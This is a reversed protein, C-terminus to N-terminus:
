EEVESSGELSSEVESTSPQLEFPIETLVDPSLQGMPVFISGSSRVLPGSSSQGADLFAQLIEKPDEGPELTLILNRDTPSDMGQNDRSVYLVMQGNLNGSSIFNLRNERHFGNLRDSVLGCRIQPTYQAGFSESKWRIIPSYNAQEDGSETWIAYTTPILEENPSSYCAYGTVKRPTSFRGTAQVDSQQSSDSGSGLSHGQAQAQASQSFLFFGLHVTTVLAIVRSCFSYQM